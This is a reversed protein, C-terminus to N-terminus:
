NKEEKDQTRVTSSWGSHECNEVSVESYDSKASDGFSIKLLQQTEPLTKDLRFSFKPL